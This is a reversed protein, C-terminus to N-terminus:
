ECIEVGSLNRKHRKIWDDIQYRRITYVMLYQLLIHYKPKIKIIFNLIDRIFTINRLALGQWFFKWIYKLTIKQKFKEIDKSRLNPLDVISKNWFDPNNRWGEEDICGNIEAIKELIETKPLPQFISFFFSEPKLEDVVRVSEEM